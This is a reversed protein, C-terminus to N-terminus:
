STNTKPADHVLRGKAKPMNNNIYQLRAHIKHNKLKEILQM